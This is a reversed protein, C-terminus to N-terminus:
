ANAKEFPVADKAKVRDWAKEILINGGKKRAEMDKRNNFYTMDHEKCFADLEDIGPDVQALQRELDTGPGCYHYGPLHAEFPMKNIMKNM